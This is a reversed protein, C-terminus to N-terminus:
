SKLSKRLEAKCGGIWGGEVLLNLRSKFRNGGSRQVILASGHRPWLLGDKYKKCIQSLHGRAGMLVGQGEVRETSNERM